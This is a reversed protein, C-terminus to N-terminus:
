RGQGAPATHRRCEFYHNGGEDDYEAVVSMGADALLATYAAKGLSRSTRGTLIDRWTCEQEPATFLFSGDAELARAVRHILTGQAEPPLLFMLGWAVVGAFRLGFFHSTEAPECAVTIGPFNAGLADVM